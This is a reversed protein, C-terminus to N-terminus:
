LEDPKTSTTSPPPPHTTPPHSASGRSTDNLRRRIDEVWGAPPSGPRLRAFSCALSTLTCNHNAARTASHSCSRPCSLHCTSGQIVSPSLSCLVSPVCPGRIRATYPARANRTDQPGGWRWGVILRLLPVCIAYAGGSRGRLTCLRSGLSADCSQLSRHPTSLSCAECRAWHMFIAGKEPGIEHCEVGPYYWVVGLWVYPCVNFASDYEALPLFLLHTRAQLVEM